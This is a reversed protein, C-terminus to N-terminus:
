LEGLNTCILELQKKNITKAWLLLLFISATTSKQPLKCPILCTILWRLGIQFSGIFLSYYRLPGTPVVRETVSLLM